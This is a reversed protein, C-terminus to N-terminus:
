PPKLAPSIIPPVPRTEGCWGQRRRRSEGRREKERRKISAAHSESEASCGAGKNEEINTKGQEPLRTYCARAM